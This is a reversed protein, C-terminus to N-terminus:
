HQGRECHGRAHALVARPASQYVVCTGCPRACCAGTSPAGGWPQACVAVHRGPSPKSARATKYLGTERRLPGYSRISRPWLSTWTERCSAHGGEEGDANPRCPIQKLGQCARLMCNTATYPLNCVGLRLPAIHVVPCKGSCRGPPHNYCSSRDQAKPHLAPTTHMAGMWCEIGANCPYRRQHGPASCNAIKAQPTRAV